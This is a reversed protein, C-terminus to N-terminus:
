KYFGYGDLEAGDYITTTEGNKRHEAALEMNRECAEPVCHGCGECTGYGGYAFITGGKDMGKYEDLTDM